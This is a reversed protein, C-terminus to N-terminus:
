LGAEFNLFVALHFSREDLASPAALLRRAM